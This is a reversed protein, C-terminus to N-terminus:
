AEKAQRRKDYTNLCDSQFSKFPVRSNEFIGFNGSKPFVSIKSIKNRFLDQEMRNGGSIKSFKTSHFAGVM